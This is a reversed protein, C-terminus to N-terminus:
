RVYMDFAQFFEPWQQGPQELENIWLRPQIIPPDFSLQVNGLVYVQDNIVEIDTLSIPETTDNIVVVDQGDKRYLLRRGTTTVAELAYYVSPIYGTVEMDRLIQVQLSSQVETLIGNKWLCVVPQFDTRAAALGIMYWDGQHEEIELPRVGRTNGPNLQRVVGDEWVLPISGAGSVSASGAAMVQGNVLAMGTVRTREFNSELLVPDGNKWYIAQEFGNGQQIAGYVYVDGNWSEHGLCTSQIGGARDLTTLVGNTWYAAESGSNNTINGSVYVNNEDATISRSIIRQGTAGAITTMQDGEYYVIRTTEEDVLETGVIYVTPEAVAANGDDDGCSWSLTLLLLVIPLLYNKKVISILMLILGQM